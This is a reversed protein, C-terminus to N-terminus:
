FWSAISSHAPSEASPEASKNQVGHLNVGLTRMECNIAALIYQQHPLWCKMPPAMRALRTDILLRDELFALNEPASAIGAV